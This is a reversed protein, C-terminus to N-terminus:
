AKEPETANSQQPRGLGRMGRDAADVGGSAMRDRVEACIMECANSVHERMLAEARTGQRDIICELIKRHQANYLRLDQLRYPALIPPYVAPIQQVMQLMEHLFRNDSQSLIAQHFVLNQERWTAISPEDPQAGDAVLSDNVDIARRARREADLKLGREAAIRCATGELVARMEYADTIDRIDFSRVTYGRNPSYELLGDKANAALAARIPTRSVQFQEALATERMHEGSAFEGRLIMERMRNTLEQTTLKM